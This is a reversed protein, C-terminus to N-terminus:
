VLGVLIPNSTVTFNLKLYMYFYTKKKLNTDNEVSYGFWLDTKRRDGKPKSSYLKLNIYIFNYMKETSFCINNTRIKEM